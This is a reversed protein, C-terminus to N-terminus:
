PTDFEAILADIVDQQWQQAILRLEATTNEKASSPLATIELGNEIMKPLYCIVVRPSDEWKKYIIGAKALKQRKQHGHPYGEMYLNKKQHCIAMIKERDEISLFGKIQFTLTEGNVSTIEFM